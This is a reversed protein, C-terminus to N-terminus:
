ASVPGSQCVECHQWHNTQMRKAELCLQGYLMQLEFDKSEKCDDRSQKEITQLKSMVECM